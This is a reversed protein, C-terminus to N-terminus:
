RFDAAHDRAWEAYTLPAQVAIAAIDREHVLSTFGEPFATRLVREVALHHRAIPNSEADPFLM